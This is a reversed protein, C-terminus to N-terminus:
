PHGTTVIVGGDRDPVRRMVHLIHEVSCDPRTTEAAVEGAGHSRGLPGRSGRVPRKLAAARRQESTTM